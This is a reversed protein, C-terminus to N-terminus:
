HLVVQIIRLASSSILQRENGKTWSHDATFYKLCVSFSLYIFGGLSSLPSCEVTHM